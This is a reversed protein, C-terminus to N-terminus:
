PSSQTARRRRRNAVQNADAQRGPEGQDPGGWRPNTPLHMEQTPMDDPHVTVEISDDAVVDDFDDRFDGPAQVADDHVDVGKTSRRPPVDPGRQRLAGRLRMLLAERRSPKGYPTGRPPPTGTLVIGLSTVDARQLIRRSRSAKGATTRGVRCTVLAADAYQLVDQADSTLLLPSSDLLVVDAHARADAVIGSLRAVVAAPHNIAKMSSVLDVGAVSTTRIIQDLYGSFDVNATMALDALGNGQKADLYLHAEPKRFDCDIVIVSRGTEAVAAALNVVTTSKGEGGDTGTVVLVQPTALQARAGDGTRAGHTVLTIASRLSRYAEAAPSDPWMATVLAHDARETRSLKPIEALVPLGFAEEVDDRERLRADLRDITLAVGLGLILGLAAAILTRAERSRPPSFGGPDLATIQPTGLVELPPLPEDASLLDQVRQFVIGYRTLETNIRAQIVEDTPDDNRQRELNAISEEIKALQDEAAALADEHTQATTQQLFSVTALAYAEVLIAARSQDRDTATVTLSGVESIVWASIAGPSAPPVDAPLSDAAIEAVDPGTTLHAALHLNVGASEGPTPLLTVSAQYGAGEPEPAEEPSMVYGVATALLVCVVVIPWRRRFTKLYEVLAM